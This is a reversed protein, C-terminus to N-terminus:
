THGFVYRVVVEVAVHAAGLGGLRREDVPVCSFDYGGAVVAASSGRKAPSASSGSASAMTAVSSAANESAAPAASRGSPETYKFRHKKTSKNKKAMARM